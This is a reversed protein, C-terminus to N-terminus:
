RSDATQTRRSSLRCEARSSEVAIDYGSLNTLASFGPKVYYESLIEETDFDVERILGLNGDIEPVLSGAMIYLRRDEEVFIANSRIKSKPCAIRKYLKVTKERENVEYFSIYSQEDKDFFKVKRRKHWHNDFVM